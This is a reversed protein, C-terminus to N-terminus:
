YADGGFNSYCRSCGLNAAHGLFGSVKRAAPIDCAICLLPARITKKGSFVDMTVGEWLELLEAVMPTLYSNLSKSPEKPGPILGILIINERKFRINRPLNMIALYIVGISYTRHKYPQFWDINLMLALTNHVQVSSNHFEQWIKGDYFDCLKYDSSRYKQWDNCIELFRKRWELSTIISTYPYVKFPYFKSTDNRTRIKKLYLFKKEKEQDIVSCVFKLPAMEKLVIKIIM